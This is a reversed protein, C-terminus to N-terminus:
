GYQIWYFTIFCYLSLFVVGTLKGIPKKFKALMLLWISGFMLIGQEFFYERPLDIKYFALSAMVFAVNFVNSGLVNGLILDQDKKKVIAIISTILEPFSTGFAIFIASIIYESIQAIRCIETGAKVLLDGGYYLLSFGGLLKLYLVVKGKITNQIEDLIIQDAESIKSQDNSSKMDKYTNFLYILFFSILVLCSLVYLENFFLIATLTTSLALHIQVQNTIAKATVPIKVFLVSIALVLFLNSINSGVINGIAMAGLNNSAALQSVFFEPLSTGLGILLLGIVLPPIDFILGVKESADLALEAGLFLMFISLVLLLIEILM